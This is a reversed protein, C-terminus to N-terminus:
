PRTTTAPTSSCCRPASSGPARWCTSTPSTAACSARARTPRSPTRAPRTRGPACRSACARGNHEADALLDAVLRDTRGPHYGLIAVHDTLDLPATGQMRRGKTASVANALHTFATSLTVIGGVIVYTGVVRGPVSQPFLEGYGVTSTTVLFWWWYNHAAAIDSETRVLTMAVWSSAFVFILLAVPTRASIGTLWRHWLRLFLHM